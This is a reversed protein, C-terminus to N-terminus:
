KTTEKNRQKTTKNNRQKTTENNRQEIKNNERTKTQNPHKQNTQKRHRTKNNGHDPRFVGVPVGVAAWRMTPTPLLRLLEGPLLM